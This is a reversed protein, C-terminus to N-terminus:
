RGYDRWASWVLLLGIAAITSSGIVWGSVRGAVVTIAFAAVLSCALLLLSALVEGAKVGRNPDDSMGAAMRFYGAWLLGLVGTSWSAVILAIEVAAM